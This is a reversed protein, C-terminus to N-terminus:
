RLFPVCLDKKRFEEGVQEALIKAEGYPGVGQLKDNEILPHHDPIGYVATSSIHIVRKIGKKLSEELVIRTGEVDTSFIEEKTYLPLAAACHVVMDAGELSKIVDDRKRIDGIIARIKDKEPYDFEVLDM